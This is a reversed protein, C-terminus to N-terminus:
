RRRLHFRLFQQGAGYQGTHPEWAGPALSSSVQTTPVADDANPRLPWTILSRGDTLVTLTPPGPISSANTDSTGFAYEVFAAFGDQDQDATPDGVFAIADATGPTGRDAVSERWTDDGPDPTTSSLVRVLTRGGGDTSDIDDRYSFRLIEQGNAAFLVLREGSNSLAGTFTGPAMVLADGYRSTMAERNRVVLLRTGPAMRIGAPFLYEIGEGDFEAVAGREPDNAWKVGNALTGAQRGTVQNAASEGLTEALTWWSPDDGASALRRALTM